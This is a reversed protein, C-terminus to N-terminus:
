KADSEAAKSYLFQSIMKELVFASQTITLEDGDKLVQRNGDKGPDDQGHQKIDHVGGVPELHNLQRRGAVIEPILLCCGIGQLVVLRYDDFDCSNDGCVSVPPPPPPPPLTDDVCDQPCNQPTEPPSTCISDSCENPSTPTEDDSDCGVLVLVMVIIVLVQIVKSFM